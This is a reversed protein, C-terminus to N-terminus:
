ETAETAPDPQIFEKMNRVNRLKTNGEQDQILVANGKKQVVKLPLTELNPCLKNERSKNLM